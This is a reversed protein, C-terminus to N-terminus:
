SESRDNGEVLTIKRYIRGLLYGIEMYDLCNSSCTIIGKALALCGCCWKWDDPFDDPFKKSLLYGCLSCRCIKITPKIRRVHIPM